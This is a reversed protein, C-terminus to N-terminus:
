SPKQNHFDPADPFLGPVANALDDGFTDMKLPFTTFPEKTDPHYLDVKSDITHWRYLTIMVETDLSGDREDEWGFPDQVFGMTLFFTNGEDDNMVDTDDLLLTVTGNSRMRVSTEFAYLLWSISARLAPVWPQSGELIRIAM